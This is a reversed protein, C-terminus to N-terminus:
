RTCRDAHPFARTFTRIVLALTPADIRYAQLWQAFVGRPGLRARAAAYLERTYLSAAGGLWPNSPESAIVDWRRGTMVVARGDVFALRVKRSGLAPPHFREFLRAARAMAPELEAVDVRRM